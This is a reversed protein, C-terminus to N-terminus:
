AQAQLRHHEPDKAVLRILDNVPVRLGNHDNSQPLLSNGLTISLGSLLLGQMNVNCHAHEQFSSQEAHILM